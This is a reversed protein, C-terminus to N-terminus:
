VVGENQISGFVFVWYLTTDCVGWYRIAERLSRPLVGKLSGEPAILDGARGRLDQGIDGGEM